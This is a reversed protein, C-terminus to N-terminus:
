STVIANFRCGPVMKALTETILALHRPRVSRGINMLSATDRFYRHNAEREEGNGRAYVYGLTHGFEHGTLEIRKAEFSVQAGPHPPSEGINRRASSVLRVSQGVAGDRAVTALVLPPSSATPVM